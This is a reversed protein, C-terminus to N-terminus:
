KLDKKPYGYADYKARIEASRMAEARSVEAHHQADMDYYKQLCKQCTPKLAFNLSWGYSIYRHVIDISCHSLVNDITATADCIPINGDIIHIM